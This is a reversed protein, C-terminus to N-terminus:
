YTFCILKSLGRKRLREYENVFLAVLSILDAYDHSPEYNIVTQLPGNVWKKWDYNFRGGLQNIM